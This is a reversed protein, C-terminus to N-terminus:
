EPSAPQQAPKQKKKREFIPITFWFTSGKGPESVVGMKGGHLNVVEKCISLGLGTGQGEQRTLGKRNPLQYFKKFLKIKDEKSIGVGTDTVDVRVNRKRNTIRVIISGSDTFKIANGILNVFVQILRNPDASIEPVDYNVDWKFTLGKNTAVEVLANISPNEGLRALSVQQRDLKIKGSSLKAVDLIQLILQMLREAEDMIIRLYEQQEENLKGFQGEMMLKSFGKINTLPTKLDHSINYIFQTKLDSETKLKEAERELAEATDQLREIRRKTALEKSVILYGIVSGNEDFNTVISQECPLPETGGKSVLNVFLSTVAGNKAAFSIAKNLANQSEADACLLSFPTGALDETRCNMLREASKNMKKIYGLQDISVISDTSMQVVDDVLRQVANVYKEFNNNTVVCSYGGISNKYVLLRTDLYIDNGVSLKASTTYISNGIKDLEQAFSKNGYVLDSLRRNTIEAQPMKLIRDVNKSAWVVKTQADLLMFAEANSYQMLQTGELLERSETIDYFAVHMLKESIKGSTLSFTRGSDAKGSATQTLGNKLRTFSAQDISFFDSIQKGVIEKITKNLITLAQKNAKVLNGSADVLLQPTTSNFAADFYRAVRVSREKESKIIIDYGVINTLLGLAELLSNDFKDENKSLLTVIGFAKKGEGVPLILCSKYGENYYRILEPFSSYQSLRNDIYPKGTNMAFEEASNVTEKNKHVDKIVFSDIGFNTKVKESFKSLLAETTAAEKSIGIMETLLTDFSVM